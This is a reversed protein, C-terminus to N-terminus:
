LALVDLDAKPARKSAALAARARESVIRARISAVQSMQGIQRKAAAATKVGTKEMYLPVYREEFEEPTMPKGISARYECFAEVLADTQPVVSSYHRGPSWKGSVVHQWKAEAAKQADEVADKNMFASQVIALVGSGAIEAANGNLHELGPVKHVDMELRSENAKGPNFVLTVVHGEVTSASRRTRTSGNEM